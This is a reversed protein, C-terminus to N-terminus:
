RNDGLEALPIEIVAREHIGTPLLRLETAKPDLPTMSEIVGEAMEGSGSGGGSMFLYVNKRDDEAWWDIPSRDIRVGPFHMFLVSGPSVALTVSFSHEESTLSDFRISCGELAEVVAGIPLTGHPGDSKSMRRM